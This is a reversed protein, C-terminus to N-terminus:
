AEVAISQSAHALYAHVEEPTALSRVADALKRAEAYNLAALRRKLAPIASPSASFETLGLGLLIPTAEPNAAMEGCMGVHIGARQGAAISQAILALVSPHFPDLLHAVRANTRDCALTYQTLDNTGISFFDCEQALQDACLAASPIEIMVGISVDGVPEGAAILEARVSELLARAARFDSVGAIMPFMIGVPGHASARLLARLQTRILLEMGWLLRTGRWGLFPNDEKEITLYRVDKDGGIDATRILCRRGELAEIVTRYATYQEAETPPESRDLFLFETRFLGVGEAGWDLAEHCANPAAINALVEVQVGDATIAAAQAAQREQAQRRQEASRLQRYRAIDDGSPALDLVGAGGDLTATTGDAARWLESGVGVVAPTGLARALIATHSTAGGRVTAFGLVMGAPFQATDSPALDDALLIVPEDLQLEERGGQLHRLVRRTVDEMDGARQSLYDDGLARLSAAYRSMVDALAHEANILQTDIQQSVEGLLEPDDLMEIHAEFIAAVEAGVERQLSEVLVQLEARTLNLAHHLRAQEQEIQDRSVSRYPVVLAAPRWVLVPGVATGPSVGQGHLKM